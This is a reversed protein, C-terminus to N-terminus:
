REIPEHAPEARLPSPPPKGAALLRTPITGALSRGRTPDYVRSGRDAGHHGRRDRWGPTSTAHTDERRAGRARRSSPQAPYLGVPARRAAASAAIGHLRARSGHPQPRIARRKQAVGGPIKNNQSGLIEVVDPAEFHLLDPRHQISAAAPTPHRAPPHNELQNNCRPVDTFRDRLTASPALAARIGSMMKTVCAGVPRAITSKLMAKKPCCDHDVSTIITGVSRKLRRM